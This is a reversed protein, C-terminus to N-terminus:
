VLRGASTRPPENAVWVHTVFSGWLVDARLSNNSKIGDIILVKNRNTYISQNRYM